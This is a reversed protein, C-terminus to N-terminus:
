VYGRPTFELGFGAVSWPALGRGEFRVAALRGQVRCDVKHTQGIVYPQPAGWVVADAAAMQAGVRVTVQSGVSGQIRPYVASILKVTQEDKLVLGTRECSATITDGNARTDGTDVNFVQAKTPSMGVPNAKYGGRQPSDWPRPDTEWPGLDTEWTLVTYPQPVIGSATHTVEPLERIGWRDRLLDWVYAVNCVDDRGLALAVVVENRSPVVYVHSVRLGAQSVGAFITRKVRGDGISRVQTGDTLVIDGPTLVVQGAPVRAVANHSAAGVAESLKRATYIYPRGSYTIAYLGEARYAMLSDGMPAMCMVPGKGLGLYLDGAQNSATPTWAVPIGGLTGADSWEVREEDMTGTAVMTPSAAFIHQNFPALSWGIRDAPWDPLRKVAAGDYYWPPMQSPGSPPAGFVPYGNLIGGTMTGAAFPGWVEPLGPTVNTWTGGDTVAVGGDGAVLMRPAGNQSFLIGWKPSLTVAPAYVSEGDARTMGSGTSRMNQAASYVDPALAAPMSDVNVGGLAFEVVATRRM